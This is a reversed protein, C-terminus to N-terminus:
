KTRFTVTVTRGDGASDSVSWDPLTRPQWTWLRGATGVTSVGTRAANVVAHHAIAWAQETTAGTATLTTGDASVAAAVGLTQRMSSALGAADAATPRTFGCTVGAPSHGTLVSAVVRANPEHKRYAEPHGSRQITQAVANIEGTEWGDVKVLADYFADTSYYPDLIQKTSGWGQSPRQQFLGLSDRDGYDLNRVGSEQYATAMAISGARAPRGREVARGVIIGALRAQGLDLVTSDGAAVFRCRAEFPTPSIYENMRLWVVGGVVSALLLVLAIAAAIGCGASRRRRARSTASRDSPHSSTM